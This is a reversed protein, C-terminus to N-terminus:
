SFWQNWVTSYQARTGPRWAAGMFNAVQNPLGTEQLTNNLHEMGGHPSVARHQIHHRTYETRRTPSVPFISVFEDVRSDVSSQDVMSDSLDSLSADTALVSDPLPLNISRGSRPPSTWWHLSVRAESIISVVSRLSRGSGRPLCQQLPRSNLRGLPVLNTKGLLAMLESVCVSNTHLMRRSLSAIQADQRTAPTSENEQHGVRTGLLFFDSHPYTQVKNSEEKLGSPLSTVVIRRQPSVSTQILRGIGSHRGPLLHCTNGKSPMGGDIAKNHGYVSLPVISLRIPSPM